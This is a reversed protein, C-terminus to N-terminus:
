RVKIDYQKIKNHLHQRTVELLEAAKTVKGGAKELAEIIIQKEVARLKEKLSKRSELQDFLGADNQLQPFHEISLTSSDGSLALAREITNELERVNGPWSNVLLLKMADATIEVPGKNMKKTYKELFHETLPLVDDKRDRLPPITIPVVNLRYYLDQRFRGAKIDGTLDRNTASIVRVDVKRPLNEGVRRIEGEQLARLLKVQLPMPMDGIEDLFISGGNATEFLGSKDISAGTFAGRKHGFLESELLEAPM